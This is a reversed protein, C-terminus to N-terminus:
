EEQINMIYRKFKALDTSTSVFCVYSTIQQFRFTYHIRDNFPPSPHPPSQLCKLRIKLMAWM